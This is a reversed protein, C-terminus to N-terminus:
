FRGPPQARRDRRPTDAALARLLSWRRRRPSQREPHRALLRALALRWGRLPSAAATGAAPQSRHEGQERHNRGGPEALEDYPPSRM